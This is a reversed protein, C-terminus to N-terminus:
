RVTYLYDLTCAQVVSQNLICALLVAHQALLVVGESLRNRAALSQYPAEYPVMHSTCTRCDGSAHGPRGSGIDFVAGTHDRQLPDYDCCMFQDYAALSRLDTPGFSFIHFQGAVDTTLLADGAPTWCGDLLCIPENSTWLGRGPYTNRTDFKALKKGTAVDHVLVTGDYAWTAVVDPAWPHVALEYLSKTHGDLVHLQRGDNAHFVHVSMDSVCAVVRKDDLSWSVQQVETNKLTRGRRKQPCSTGAQLHCVLTLTHVWECPGDDLDVAEPRLSSAAATGRLGNPSPSFLRVSGDGCATAVSAGSHSFRVSRIDGTHGTLSSLLQVVPWESRPVPQHADLRRRVTQSLEQM